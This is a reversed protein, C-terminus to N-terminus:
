GYKNGAAISEQDKALPDKACIPCLINKEFDFVLDPNLHYIQDKHQLVQVCNVVIDHPLSALQQKQNNTLLFAPPLDGISIEALGEKGDSSLLCKCCPACAAIKAHLQDIDKFTQHCLKSEEQGIPEGILNSIRNKIASTNTNLGLEDNFIAKRLNISCCHYYALALTPDKYFHGRLFKVTAQDLHITNKFLPLTNSLRHLM